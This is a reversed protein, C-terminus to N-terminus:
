MVTKDTERLYMVLFVYFLEDSWLSFMTIWTFYWMTNQQTRQKIIWLYTPALCANTILRLSHWGCVELKIQLFHWLWLRAKVGRICIRDARFKGVCVCARVCVDCVCLERLGCVGEALDPLSEARRCMWGGMQKLLIHTQIFSPGGAVPQRFCYRPNSKQKPTLIALFSCCWLKQESSVALLPGDSPHCTTTM